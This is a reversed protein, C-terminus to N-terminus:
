IMLDGALVAKCELCDFPCGTSRREAAELRDCLAQLLILVSTPVMIAAGMTEANALLRRAEAIPDETTM